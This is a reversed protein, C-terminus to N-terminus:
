LFAEFDFRDQNVYTGEVRVSDGERLRDFRDRDARSTNFPLTVLVRRGDRNRVEFTGRRSDISSVTGELREFRGGPRNYGGRDQASERVTIYDTYYRGDRDQQGRAAVYDGPELNSVAYDQQRYVVRTNNDYRVLERRGADTRLEIQRARTDVNRVEGVLDNGSIGGFDGPGDIHGLEHCGTLGLLVLALFGFLSAMLKMTQRRSLHVQVNNRQRIIGAEEVISGHNYNV